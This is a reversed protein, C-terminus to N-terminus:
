ELKQLLTTKITGNAHKFSYQNRDMAPQRPTELVVTIVEGPQLPTRHRYNSGTVPDGAKNYWFEEVQLGAIAGAALNKLRFTTIIGDSGAKTKGAKIVPKLYGLPAEGRVPAALRKPAAAAAPAAPQAARTQDASAGTALLAVGALAMLMHRQRDM